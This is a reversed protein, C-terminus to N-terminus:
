YPFYRGNAHQSVPNYTHVNLRQRAGFYLKRGVNVLYLEEVHFERNPGYNCGQRIGM